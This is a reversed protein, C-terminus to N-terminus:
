RKPFVLDRIIRAAWYAAASIPVLWLRVRRAIRSARRPRTREDM